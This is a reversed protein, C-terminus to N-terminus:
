KVFVPHALFAHVKHPRRRNIPKFRAHPVLLMYAVLAQPVVSCVVPLAIRPTLTTLAFLNLTSAAATMTWSLTNETQPFFYVKKITPLYGVLGVATGFCLALLADQTSIWLFVGCLALLLCVVDYTSFGGIGHKISLIFVLLGTFVFVLGTWITTRAGVSIYSAATIVDVILWILYSMREPRTHGRLISVIYPIIQVMALGGALEGILAHNM